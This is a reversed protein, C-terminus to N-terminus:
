QGSMSTGSGTCTMHLCALVNIFEGKSYSSGKSKQQQKKYAYNISNYSTSTQSGNGDSLRGHGMDMACEKMSQVKDGMKSSMQQVVVAISSPSQVQKSEPSTNTPVAHVQLADLEQSGGSWQNLLNGHQHRSYLYSDQFKEDTNQSSSNM